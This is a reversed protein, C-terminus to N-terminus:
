RKTQQEHWTLGLAVAANLQEGSIPKVLYAVVSAKLSITGPVAYDVTALIIAVRPFRQVLQDVLWAGGNGPMKLDAVVVHIDPIL